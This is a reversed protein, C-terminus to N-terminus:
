ETGIQNIFLHGDLIMFTCVWRFRFSIFIWNFISHRSFFFVLGFWVTDFWILDIRKENRNVITCPIPNCPNCSANWEKLYFTVCIERKPYKWYEKAGSTKLKMACREMWIFKSCEDTLRLLFRANMRHSDKQLLICVDTYSSRQCFHNGLYKMLYLISLRGVAVCQSSDAISNVPTLSMCQASLEIRVKMRWLMDFDTNSGNLHLTLNRFIKWSGQSSTSVFVETRKRRVALLINFITIFNFTIKTILFNCFFVIQNFRIINQNAIERRWSYFTFDVNVTENCIATSM